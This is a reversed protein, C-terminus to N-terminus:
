KDPTDEAKQSALMTIKGLNTEILEKQDPWFMPPLHTLPFWECRYAHGPDTPHGQQQTTSFLYYHTVKWARKRFDMRERVGLKGLYALETLGAEEEIERQAAIELAEGSEVKGKPLIYDPNGEELVLAVLLKEGEWRVIVGGASLSESMESPRIYWSQDIM